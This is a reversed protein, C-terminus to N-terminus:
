KRYNHKMKREGRKERKNPSWSKLSIKNKEVEPKYNMSIEAIGEMTLKRGFCLTVKIMQVMYIEESKCIM